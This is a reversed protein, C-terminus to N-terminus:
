ADSYHDEHNTRRRQLFLGVSIVVTSPLNLVAAGQIELSSFDWSHRQNGFSGHDHRKFSMQEVRTQDILGQHGSVFLLCPSQLYGEETRSPQDISIM